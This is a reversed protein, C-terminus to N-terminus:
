SPGPSPWGCPRPVRSRPRGRRAARQAAPGRRQAAARRPDAAARRRRQRRLRVRTGASRWRTRRRRRAVDDQRRRAGRGPPAAGPGRPLAVADLRTTRRGSSPSRRGRGTAAAVAPRPRSRVRVAAGHGVVPDAGPLRRSGVKGAKTRLFTPDQRVEDPLDIVEALGLEEGQYVYAGGPLALMLLAAARARRTGLEGGGYRTVHRVVDHNSLVWTPPAGVEGACRHEPRDGRAAGPTGRRSCSTSTSRRTCSTPGSTAPWAGPTHVWVEAVFSREGDYADTITRWSRYVDHVEDLDWHPHGEPAPGGAAFRGTLDPMEPIRPWGTPSTSGSGTSAATSGSGCSRSSSPGSRPTSGTSTPSSPAFLHLYWQGPAGDAETVRDVGAASRARGTTRRSTATRGGGDRFLYRARERSGPRGGAGGPVLRARRVHPEPRHGRDGPARARPRRRAPADFDALTGFRPDVDRYDAVDYGADAQPSPYFPNLWIADVGLRRLYPLRSRIGALDGLGDGDADAFSRVYVQYIVADRWWPDSRDATMTADAEAAATLRRLVAGADLAIRRLEDLTADDWRRGPPRQDGRGRRRRRRELRRRAAADVHRQLEDTFVPSGAPDADGIAERRRRALSRFAIPSTTPHRPM